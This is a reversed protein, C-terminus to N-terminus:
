LTEPDIEIESVHGEDPRATQAFQRTGCGPCYYERFVLEEDVFRSPDDYYPGAEAVSRENVVLSEKLNADIPGFPEGCEACSADGTEPDVEVHAGLKM